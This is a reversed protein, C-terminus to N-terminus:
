IWSFYFLIILSIILRLSNSYALGSIRRSLSGVLPPPPDGAVLSRRGAAWGRPEWAPRRVWGRGARQGSVPETLQGARWSAAALEPM